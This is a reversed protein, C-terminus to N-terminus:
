RAALTRRVYALYAEAEEETITRDRNVDALRVEANYHDTEHYVGGARAAIFPAAFGSVDTYPEPDSLRLGEHFDHAAEVCSFKVATRSEEDFEIRRTGGVFLCGTSVLPILVAGFATFLRLIWKARSREIQPDIM